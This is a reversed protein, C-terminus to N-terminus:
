VLGFTPEPQWADLYAEREKALALAEQGLATITYYKRRAGTTKEDQEGWKPSLFGRKVLRHLAPYLTGDGIKEQHADSLARKIDGGYLRQCRLVRLIDEDLGSVKYNKAEAISLQM